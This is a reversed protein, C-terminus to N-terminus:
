AVEEFRPKACARLDEGVVACRRAASRIRELDERQVSGEPAEKLMLEVTGLIIGVPNNLAHALGPILADLSQRRLAELDSAKRRELSRALVDMRERIGALNERQARERFSIQSTVFAAFSLVGAKIAFECAEWPRGDWFAELYFCALFAGSAAVAGQVHRRKLYLCATFIPLLYLPWFSSQAGGSFAVVLSSLAVNVAMSVLPALAGSSRRLMRHYALNFALMAAFAWLIDPFRVLPNDRSIVSVVTMVLSFLVEQYHLAKPDVAGVSELENMM